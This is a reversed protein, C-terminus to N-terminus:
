VKYNKYCLLYNIKQILIKKVLSTQTLKFIVIHINLLYGFKYFNSFVFDARLYLHKFASQNLM